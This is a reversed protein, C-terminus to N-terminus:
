EKFRNEKLKKFLVKPVNKNKMQTQIYYYIVYIWRENCNM